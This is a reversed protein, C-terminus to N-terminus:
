LDGIPPAPFSKFSVVPARFLGRRRRRTIFSAFKVEDPAKTDSLPELFQARCRLLCHLHLKSLSRFSLVQEGGDLELYTHKDLLTNGFFLGVRLFQAVSMYQDLGLDLMLHCFKKHNKGNQSQRGKVFTLNGMFYM